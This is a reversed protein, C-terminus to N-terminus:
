ESVKVVSIEVDFYQKLLELAMPNYKIYAKQRSSYPYGPTIMFMRGYQEGKKTLHWIGNDFYIVNLSELVNRVKDVPLKLFGAVKTISYHSEYDAVDTPIAEPLSLQKTQAKIYGSVATALENQTYEGALAWAMSHAIDKPVGSRKIALDAMDLYHNINDLTSQKTIPLQIQIEQNVKHKGLIETAWHQFEIILDQKTEDKARAADVKFLLGMIGDRTLCTLSQVGGPTTIKVIGQYEKFFKENRKLLRSVNGRDLSTANTIDLVPIMGRGNQIVKRVTINHFTELTINEPTTTELYEQKILTM